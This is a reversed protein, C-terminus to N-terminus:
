ETNILGPMLNTFAGHHGKIRLWLPATHRQASDNLSLRSLRYTLAIASLMRRLLLLLLLLLRPRIETMILSILLKHRQYTCPWAIIGTAHADVETGQVVISAM